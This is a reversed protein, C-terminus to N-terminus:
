PLFDMSRACDRKVAEMDPTNTDYGSDEYQGVSGDEYVPASEPRGGHSTILLDIIGQEGENQRYNEIMFNMM